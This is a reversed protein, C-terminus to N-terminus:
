RIKRELEDIKLSLRRIQKQMAELQTVLDSNSTRSNKANSIEVNKPNEFEKLAIGAAYAAVGDGITALVTGILTLRAILEDTSQASEETSKKNKDAM